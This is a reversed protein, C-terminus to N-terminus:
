KWISTVEKREKSTISHYLIFFLGEFIFLISYITVIKAYNYKPHLYCSLITIIIIILSNLLTDKYFLGFRIGEIYELFYRKQNIVYDIKLIQLDLIIYTVLAIIFSLISPLKSLILKNYYLNYQNKVGIINFQPSLNYDKWLSDIYDQAQQVNGNYVFYTSSSILSSGESSRYIYIQKPDVGRSPTIFSYDFNKLQDSYVIQIDNIDEATSSSSFNAYIKKAEAKIGSNNEMSKPIILADKSTDIESEIGYAYLYDINVVTYTTTDDDSAYSTQIAYNFVSNNSRLKSYIHEQTELPFYMSYSNTQPDYTLADTKVGSFKYMNDYLKNLASNNGLLTVAETISSVGNVIVPLTLVLIIIKIIQFTRKVKLNFSHGKLSLNIPVLYILLFLILSMMLVVILYLITLKVLSLYFYHYATGLSRIFIISLISYIVIISPLALLYQKIVLKWFIELASNGELKLQSIIKQQSFLKGNIIITLLGTFLIILIIQQTSIGYNLNPDKQVQDTTLDYTISDGFAKKFLLSFQKIQNEQSDINNSYLSYYGLNTFGVSESGLPYIGYIRSDFITFLRNDKSLDHSSYHSFNKLGAFADKDSLILKSQYEPDNAYMFFLRDYVTKNSENTILEKFVNLDSQDLCSKFSELFESNNISLDISKINLVYYDTLNNTPIFNDYNRNDFSTSCFYFSMTSLILFLVISTKWLSNLKKM